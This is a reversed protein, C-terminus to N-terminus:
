LFVPLNGLNFCHCRQLILNEEPKGLSVTEIGTQHLRGVDIVTDLQKSDLLANSFPLEWKQEPGPEQSVGVEM